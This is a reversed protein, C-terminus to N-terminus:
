SHGTGGLNHVGGAGGILEHYTQRIAHTFLDGVHCFVVVTGHVALDDRAELLAQISWVRIPAGHFHITLPYKPIRRQAHQHFGRIADPRDFTHM